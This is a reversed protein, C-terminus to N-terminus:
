RRIAAKSLSPYPNLATMGSKKRTCRTCTFSQGLPYHIEIHLQPDGTANGTEGMTGVVDNTTVAPAGATALTDALGRLVAEDQLHCYFAFFGTGDGETCRLWLYNGYINGGGYDWPPRLTADTARRYGDVNVDVVRAAFPAYALPWDASFPFLDIGDHARRAPSNQHSWAYGYNGDRPDHWNDAVPQRYTGEVLPFALPISGTYPDVAPNPPTPGGPKKAPSPAAAATAPVLAAATAVAGIHLLDRRTLARRASRTDPRDCM